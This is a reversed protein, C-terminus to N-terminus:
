VSMPSGRRKFVAGGSASSRMLDSVLCLYRFVDAGHSFEDHLPGMPERTHAHVARRYRRLCVLLRSTKSEDFYVRRFTMRATRIGEEISVNPTIECQFGMATLIEQASKGTKYDRHAGDHPLWVQGFHYGKSRIESAWWDLTKFSQESYELLRLESAVRQVYILAMADNWGLDVIVHVPHMPDYPVPRIQGNMTVSDMAESYIAGAVSARPKGEWINEYDAKNVLRCHLREQELVAPFWPNDQWNMKVVVSCPPPSQVFRVWTEDIDLEPNFSVWIESGDKRITPILVDWSRKSVVQAEEVWVVDLGEYSKISDVTHQALGSFLFETGNRGRIVNELVEYHADVGLSLIQDGILKHVSDKISKQIERACLIRTKKQAGMIVLARAFGWSKGSGRGGHAVKYRMPEFLFHLKEPFHFQPSLM